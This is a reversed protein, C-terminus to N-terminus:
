DARHNIDNLVLIPITSHNVLSELTSGLMLRFIRSHDARQMALLDAGFNKSYWQIGAELDQGDSINKHTEFDKAMREFDTMRRNVEDMSDAYEPYLRIYLLSIVADTGALFELLQRFAAEANKRFDSAFVVRKFPPDKVPAKVVLVPHSARRAIKQANSGFLVEKMGSSGTSGMIILDIDEEKALNNIAHVISGASYRCHFQVGTEEYQGVFEEFHTMLDYMGAFSEPYEMKQQEDLKDWLPHVPINSYLFVEGKQQAAMTIALDTAYGACDSFDTPVLIKKM